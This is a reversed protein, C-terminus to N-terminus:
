LILIARFPNPLHLLLTSPTLFGYSDWLALFVFIVVIFLFSLPVHPHTLASNLNHFLEQNREPVHYFEYTLCLRPEAARRNPILADPGSRPLRGAGSRRHLARPSPCLSPFLISTISRAIIAVRTTLKTRTFSNASQHSRWISLYSQKALFSSTSTIIAKPITM